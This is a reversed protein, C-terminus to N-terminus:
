DTVLAGDAVIIADSASLTTGDLHVAFFGEADSGCGAWIANGLAATVIGSMEWSLYDSGDIPQSAPNLGLNIVTLMKSADDLEDFYASVLEGGAEASIETMMGDTYSMSINTVPVGRFSLSSQVLTGNVSSPDVCAYFDGAPLFTTSLGEGTDNDAAIGASLRTEDDALTFTLDTGLPSTLRMSSGPLAKRQVVAGAATLDEIPVALAEFFNARMTQYDAGRSKAYAKTPIGGAQGLDVSRGQKAAFMASLEISAERVLNLREEPVDAFIGPDSIASADIFVDGMEAIAMQGKPSQSLMEMPANMLGGRDAMPTDLIVVPQGGAIWVQEVLADAIELEARSVALVVIDGPQVGAAETVVRKAIPTYDTAPPKVKKEATMAPEIVEMVEEPESVATEVLDATQSEVTACAACIAALSATTTFRMM